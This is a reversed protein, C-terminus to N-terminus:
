TPNGTPAFLIDRFAHFGKKGVVWKAAFLAGRAFGERSRAQHRLMITDAASDFGIEHTGPVRGARNAAVDIPRQYGADKMREVLQVMTGSPADKKADHHIEWGWAGYEPKDAFLRAAEEVLRTFVNVGISFNPAWVLGTQHQEVAARVRDIEANWGTTGTVTNIGIAALGLLNDVVTDPATFEVAADVGNFQERTLGEFGANNDIDLKVAVEFGYEPALEEIIRGMKGYGVIALKM